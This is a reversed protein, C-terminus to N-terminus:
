VDRAVPILSRSIARDMMGPARAIIAVIATPTAAAIIQWYKSTRGVREAHAAATEPPKTAANMNSRARRAVGFFDRGAFDTPEGDVSSWPFGLSIRGRSEIIEVSCRTHTLRLEEKDERCTSAPRSGDRTQQAGNRTGDDFMLSTGLQEFFGDVKSTAAHRLTRHDIEKSGRAIRRSEAGSRKCALAILPEAKDERCERFGERGRLVHEQVTISTLHDVRQMM